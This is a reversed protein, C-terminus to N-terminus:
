AAKKFWRKLWVISGPSSQKKKEVVPKQNIKNIKKVKEKKREERKELKERKQPTKKQAAKTKKPEGKGQVEVTMKKKTEPPSEETPIIITGQHETHPTYAKPSELELIRRELVKNMGEWRGIDRTLEEVKQQQAGKEHKLEAIQNRLEQELDNPTTRPRKSDKHVSNESTKRKRVYDFENQSNPITGTQDQDNLAGNATTGLREHQESDNTPIIGALDKIKEFDALAIYSRGKQTIKEIGLRKLYKYITTKGIGAQIQADKLTIMKLTRLHEPLPERNIM